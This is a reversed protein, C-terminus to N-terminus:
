SRMMRAPLRMTAGGTTQTVDLTGGLAEVRDRVLQVAPGEAAVAGRVEVQLLPDAASVAVSVGDARDPHDGASVTVSVDDARDAVLAVCAFYAVDEAERDVRWPEPPVARLRWAQETHDRYWELAAVLGRQALVPPYVGHSIERLSELGAEISRRADGLSAPRSGAAATRRGAEDLAAGTEDLATGAEDLATGAEDLRRLVDAGLRTVLREVQDARASLLRERSARLQEALAATVTVQHRLDVTLRVNSVALGAPGALRELVAADTGVLDTDRAVELRGLEEGAHRLPVVVDDGSSESRPPWTQVWEAGDALWLRVESRHSRTALAATRALQPLVDEVALAESTRRVFDSLAAYPDGERGYALRDGVRGLWPSAFPVLVAVAVAALFWLLGSHGVATSLLVTVSLVALVVLAVGSAVAASRIWRAPLLPTPRGTM